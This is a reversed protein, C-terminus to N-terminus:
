RSRTARSLTLPTFKLANTAILVLPMHIIAKLGQRMEDGAISTAHHVNDPSSGCIDGSLLGAVRQVADGTADGVFPLSSAGNICSQLFQNWFGSASGTYDPSEAYVPILMESFLVVVLVISFFKSIVAKNM